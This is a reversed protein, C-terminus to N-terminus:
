KGASTRELNVLPIVNIPKSPPNILSVFQYPGLFSSDSMLEDSHRVDVMNEAFIMDFSLEM